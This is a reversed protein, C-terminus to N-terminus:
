RKTKAAVSAYASSVSYKGNKSKANTKVLVKYAKNKRLGTITKSTSKTTYSKVTKPGQKVIVTYNKLTGTIAPRKWTAKISTRAPSVKLSGPKGAKATSATTLKTKTALAVKASAKNKGNSSVVNAKVHVKYATNERLGSFTAKLGTTTVTKVTKTGQNLSVTYNVLKGTVAPRRWTASVGSSTSTIKAGFPKGVTAIALKTTSFKATAPKASWIEIGSRSQAHAIAVVTYATGPKLGSFRYSTSKTETSKLTKSGQMLLVSYKTLKGVTGTPATWSATATSDAVKSTKLNGPTGIKVSHEHFPTKFTTSVPPSTVTRDGNYGLVHATIRVTYSTNEALGKIILGESLTRFIRDAKGAQSLTVSYYDLYGYYDEPGAWGIGAEAGSVDVSLHTAPKPASPPEEGEDPAVYGDTKVSTSVTRSSHVKGFADINRATVKLTYTTKEKLGTFVAESGNVIQSKVLTSGLYLDVKHEQADASDWYATIGYRSTGLSLDSIASPAKVPPYGVFNQTYWPKGHADVFYGIGIHTYDGNLINAKHGPSNMWGAVVSSVPFGMAVNEAATWIGDGSQQFYYPNHELTQNEAMRKSWTAAVTNLSPLPLLPKLGAKARAANTERLILQVGANTQSATAAAAPEAVAAVGGGSALIAAALLLALGKRTKM